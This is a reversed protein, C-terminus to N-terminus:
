SHFFTDNNKDNIDDNNVVDNTHIDFIVIVNLISVDHLQKFPLEIKLFIMVMIVSMM